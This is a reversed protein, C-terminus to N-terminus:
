SGYKEIFDRMLASIVKSGSLGRDKCIEMFKKYLNDRIYFSYQRKKNKEDVDLLKSIHSPSEPM